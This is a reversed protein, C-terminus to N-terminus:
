PEVCFGCPVHFLYIFLDWSLFLPFLLIMVFILLGYSELRVCDLRLNSNNDCFQPKMELDTSYVITLNNEIRIRNGITSRRIGQM